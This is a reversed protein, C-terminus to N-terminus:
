SLSTRYLQETAFRTTGKIIFLQADFTCLKTAAINPM